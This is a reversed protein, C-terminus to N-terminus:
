ALKCALHTERWTFHAAAAVRQIIRAAGGAIKYSATRRISLNEVDAPLADLEARTRASVQAPLPQSVPDQPAPAAASRPIGNARQQWWLVATATIAFLVLAAVLRSPQRERGPQAPQETVAFTRNAPTTLVQQLAADLLRDEAPHLRERDDRSM